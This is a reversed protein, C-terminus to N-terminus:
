NQQIILRPTNKFSRSLDILDLIFTKIGRSLPDSWPVCIVTKYSM